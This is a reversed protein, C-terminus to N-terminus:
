DSHHLLTLLLANHDLIVELICLVLETAESMYDWGTCLINKHYVYTVFM